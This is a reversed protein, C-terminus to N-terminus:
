LYNESGLPKCNKEDLCVVCPYSQFFSANRWDLHLESKPKEIGCVECFLKKQKMNEFVEQMTIESSANQYDEAKKMIKKLKVYGM